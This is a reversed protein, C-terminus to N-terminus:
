VSYLSIPNKSYQHNIDLNCFVLIFLFLALLLFFQAQASAITKDYLHTDKRWQTDWQVGTYEEAKM